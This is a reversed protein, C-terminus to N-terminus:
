NEGLLSNTNESNEIKQIDEENVVIRILEYSKLKIGIIKRNDDCIIRELDLLKSGLLTDVGVTSSISVQTGVFAQNILLDSETLALRLVSVNNIFDVGPVHELIDYVESFYLNRGFPWGEKDIGEEPLPSFFQNLRELIPRKVSEWSNDVRPRISVRLAVWLYCPQIIHLRTTLLRKPELFSHVAKLLDAYIVNTNNPDIVVILSVHGPYEADRFVGDAALNKGVVCHVRYEFDFKRAESFKSIAQEALKEYDRSTVARQPRKLDLVAQQIFYDINELTCYEDCGVNESGLLLQLFNIKNELGVRDLRYILIETFYALLEILTIGPDSANYNTWTPAYRPILSIAEAVLDDYSRDDLNPLQIPM